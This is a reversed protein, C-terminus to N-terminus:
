TGVDTELVFCRPAVTIRGTLALGMHISYSTADFVYIAFFGFPHAAFKRVRTSPNPMHLNRRVAPNRDWSLTLSVHIILTSTPM